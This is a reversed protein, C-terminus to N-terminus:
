RNKHECYMTDYRLTPITHQMRYVFLMSGIYEGWWLGVRLDRGAIEEFLKNYYIGNM